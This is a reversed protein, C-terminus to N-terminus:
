NPPMMQVKPTTPTKPDETLVVNQAWEPREDPLDERRHAGRTEQRSLAAHVILKAVLVMSELDFIDMLEPNFVPNHDTVGLLSLDTKELEMINALAEELGRGTRVPGVKTLMEEKLKKSLQVGSIEPDASRQLKASIREAVEDCRGELAPKIAHRRAAERGAYEGVVQGMVMVDTLSNGALRNAGHLGGTVEGVAYLGPVGTGGNEDIRIGGMFYHAIPYIELTDKTIDIGLKKFKEIFPHGYEEYMKEAGQAGPQFYIGGHPSGRGEGVERAMAYAIIDRTAKLGRSDYRTLFAEGLGNTIRGGTRYSLPEMIVMPMGPLHPYLTGMPMFQVFEMDQLAAGARYALRYGDGTLNRSGSNRGYVEMGGGTALIVLKSHFGVVEGTSVDFGIAGAVEKGCLTLEIVYTNDIRRINPFRKLQGGIAKMMSRGTGHQFDVYLARRKSHGPAAVQSLKGESMAFKMGWQHFELMREPAREVM